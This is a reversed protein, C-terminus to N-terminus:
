NRDVIEEPIGNYMTKFKVSNKKKEDAEIWITFPIYNKTAYRFQNQESPKEKFMYEVKMKEARLENVIKLKEELMNEGVSAVFIETDNNRM